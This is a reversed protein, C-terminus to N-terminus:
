NTWVQELPQEPAAIEDLEAKGKFTDVSQM